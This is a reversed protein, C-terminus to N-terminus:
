LDSFKNNLNKLATEPDIVPKGVEQVLPQEIAEIKGETDKM